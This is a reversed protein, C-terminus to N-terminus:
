KIIPKIAEDQAVCFDTKELTCNGSTGFGAGNRCIDIISLGIVTFLCFYYVWFILLLIM